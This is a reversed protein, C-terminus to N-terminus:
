KTEAETAAETVAEAADTAAETQDEAADAAAETVAEAAAERAAETTAETGAESEVAETAAESGTESEAAESVAETAAETSAETEQSLSFDFIIQALVDENESIEGDDKWQTYLESICDSKRQDVIEEKKQDTADRDLKSVVQAVYYGSDTEIPTEVLTGDDLGETATILGEVVSTSDSGFTMTSCAADPDVENAATEFDEGAKVKAILEEAKALAKAKAEVMAPDETETETETETEQASGSVAETEAETSAAETVAETSAETGDAEVAADTVAESASETETQAASQTKTDTEGTLAATEAETAKETAAEAKADTSNEAAASVETAGDTEVLTTEEVVETAAESGTESEAESGTETESESEARFMAYQVKRQAAEDDSVETDVDASMAPEMKNQILRLTLYREVTEQTAGMKDLVEEGNDDLFKKAAESITSKEEDTLEVGYEEMKQEALVMNELTTVTQSKIMDGMTSGNGYIDQSMPDSVGMYNKYLDETLAQTYHTAFKVLGASIEDGNVTVATAEPDFEAEKKSCGSLSGLMLCASLGFVVAKKLRNHM